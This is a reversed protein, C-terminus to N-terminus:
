PYIDGLQDGGVDCMVAIKSQNWLGARDVSDGVHGDGYGLNAVGNHRGCVAYNPLDNSNSRVFLICETGSPCNTSNVKTTYASDALFAYSSPSPTKNFNTMYLNGGSTSAGTSRSFKMECQDDEYDTMPGFANGYSANTTWVMDTYVSSPCHTVPRNNPLNGTGVCFWPAGNNDKSTLDPIGLNKIMEDCFWWFSQFNTDYTVIWSDNNQGYLQVAQMCQRINGGCAAKNAMERARALSPLLMAALIAIIAIVVLLEILTFKKKM